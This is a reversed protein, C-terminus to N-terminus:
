RVQMRTLLTGSGDTGEVTSREPDSGTCAALLLVASLSLAPRRIM